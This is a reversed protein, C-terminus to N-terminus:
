NSRGSGATATPTVGAAIGAMVVIGNAVTVVKGTASSAGSLASFV